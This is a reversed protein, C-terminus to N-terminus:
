RVLIRWEEVAGRGNMMSRVFIQAEEVMSSIGVKVKKENKLFRAEGMSIVMSM